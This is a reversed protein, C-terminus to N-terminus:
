FRMCAAEKRQVLTDYESLPRRAVQPASIQHGLPTNTQRLRAAPLVTRFQDPHPVATGSSSHKAVTRLLQGQYWM